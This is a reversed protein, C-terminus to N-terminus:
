ASQQSLLHIAEKVRFENIYVNFHKQECHNIATSIYAVNVGLERAFYELTLEPNTYIKGNIMRKRIEAMLTTDIISPTSIKGNKDTDSSESAPTEDPIEVEQPMDADAWQLNKRVFERYAIQRKRYLYLIISLAVALLLVIGSVAIITQERLRIQHEKQQQRALFDDQEARLLLMVSYQNEMRKNVALTSDLYASAARENGTHAHYKSLLPYFATLHRDQGAPSFHDLLIYVSDIIAKTQKLDGKGLCVNGTGILMDVTLRDDNYATLVPVAKRYLRLAEDYQRRRVAIHGLQIVARCDYIPRFKVPDSSDLISRFYYEASDLQNVSAFYSWLSHRSRLNGQDYFTRWAPNSLLAKRFLPIARDYDGFDLYIRGIHHYCYQKDPFDQPSVKELDALQKLIHPFLVHFYQARYARVIIFERARLTMYLDGRAEAHSLVPQMAAIPDTEESYAALYEAEAEPKESRYRLAAQKMREIEQELEEPSLNLVREEYYCFLEELNEAYTRTAIHHFVTDPNVKMPASRMLDTYAPMRLTDRGAQALAPIAFLTATLCLFIVIKKM